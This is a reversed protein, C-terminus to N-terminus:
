ANSVVLIVFVLFATMLLAGVIVVNRARASLQPAQRAREQWPHRYRRMVQVGALQQDLYDLFRSPLPHQLAQNPIVLETGDRAQLLVAHRLGFARHWRQRDFRRRQRGDDHILAQIVSDWYLRQTTAMGNPAHQRRLRWYIYPKLLLLPWLLLVPLLLLPLAKPDVGIGFLALLAALPFAILKILAGRGGMLIMSFVYALYMRRAWDPHEFGLRLLRPTTWSWEIARWEQPPAVPPVPSPVASAAHQMESPDWDELREIRVGLRAAEAEAAAADLARTTYPQVPAGSVLFLGHVRFPM